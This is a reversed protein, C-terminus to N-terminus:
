TKWDKGGRRKEQRRIKAVEERKMDEGGRKEHRRIKAVEERKM